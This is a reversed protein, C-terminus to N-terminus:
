ISLTHNVKYSAAMYNEWSVTDNQMGAQLPHSDLQEADEEASSVTRKKNDHQANTKAM